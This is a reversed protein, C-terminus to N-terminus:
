IIQVKMEGDQVRVVLTEGNNWYYEKDEHIEKYNENLYKDIDANTGFIWSLSNNFGIYDETTKIEEKLIDHYSTPKGSHIHNFNNILSYGLFLTKLTEIITDEKEYYEIDKICSSTIYDYGKETCISEYLSIAGLKDNYTDAYKEASKQIATSFDNDHFNFIFAFDKNKAYESQEKFSWINNQNLDNAVSQLVGAEFSQSVISKIVNNLNKEDFELATEVRGIYYIENCKVYSDILRQVKNTFKKSM